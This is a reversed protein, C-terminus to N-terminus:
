AMTAAAPKAELAKVTETLVDFHKSAKVSTIQFADTVTTYFRM